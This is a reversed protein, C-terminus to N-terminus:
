IRSMSGTTMAGDSGAGCPRHAHARGSTTLPVPVARSARAVGARAVLEAPRKRVVRGPDRPPGVVKRQGRVLGEGLRLPQEIRTAREVCVLHQLAGPLSGWLAFAFQPATQRLEGDTQGVDPPPVRDPCYLQQPACGLAEFAVGVVRRGADGRGPEDPPHTRQDSADLPLAEGGERLVVEGCVEARSRGRGAVRGPVRGAIFRRPTTGRRWLGAPAPEAM